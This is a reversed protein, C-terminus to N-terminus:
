EPLGMISLAAEELPTYRMWLTWKGCGTGKWAISNLQADREVVSIQECNELLSDRISWLPNLRNPDFPNATPRLSELSWTSFFAVPQKSEVLITLGREETDWHVFRQTQEDGLTPLISSGVGYLNAMALWQGQGFLTDNYAAPHTSKLRQCFPKPCPYTLPGSRMRIPKFLSAISTDILTNAEHVSLDSASEESASDDEAFAPQGIALHLGLWFM